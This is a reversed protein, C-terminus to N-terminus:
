GCSLYQYQICICVANYSSTKIYRVAALVVELTRDRTFRVLVLVHLHSFSDLQPTKKLKKKNKKEKRKAPAAGHSLLNKLLRRVGSDRLICM